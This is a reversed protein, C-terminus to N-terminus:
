PELRRHAESHAKSHPQAARVRQCAEVEGAPLTALPLIRVEDLPYTKDTTCNFYTLYTTYTLYTM